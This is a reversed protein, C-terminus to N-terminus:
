TKWDMSALGEFAGGWFNSNNTSQNAQTNLYANAYVSDMSSQANMASGLASASQGYQNGANGYISNAQGFLANGQGRANQLYGDWQNGLGTQMNRQMSMTNATSQGTSAGLLGLSSQNRSQQRLASAMSDEGAETFRKYEQQNIDSYPDYLDQGLGWVEDGRGQLKNGYADLKNSYGTMQGIMGQSGSFINDFESTIDGYSPGTNQSGQYLSYAMLGLQLPNM